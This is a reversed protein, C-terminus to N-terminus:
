MPDFVLVFSTPADRRLTLVADSCQYHVPDNDFLVPENPVRTSQQGSTLGLVRTEVNVRIDNRLLRSRITGGESSFCAVADGNFQIRSRAREALGAVSATAMVNFRQNSLTSEHHTSFRLVQRGTVQEIAIDSNGAVSQLIAHYAGHASNNRLVWSHRTLCPDVVGTM